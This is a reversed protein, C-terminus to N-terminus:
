LYFNLGDYSLSINKPLEHNIEKHFGMQHGVHIIYGQQPKLIKLIEVAEDLTFHSIHKEKRLANIIIYKSGKMKQLETNNINNADTLYSFDGIRFGFVPLKHHMAEIPTIEIDNVFFNKNEIINIEIDPVGPYKYEDFAYSYEKKISDAVKKRAYIEMPKNQIWNFSRIDDLGGIHDRHEHTILVADLKKVNERLMQQRFDPGADIVINTSDTEVFISTRLRKDYKDNSKCVKCDCAIVPMGQSTGSGLVTIKV